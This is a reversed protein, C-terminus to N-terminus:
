RSRSGPHEAALTLGMRPRPETPLADGQWPSPRPNSDRRGSWNVRLYPCLKSPNPPSRFRGIQCSRGYKPRGLKTLTASLPMWPSTWRLARQRSSTHSRDSTDRISSHGLHDKVEEMHRGNAILIAACTHRLDHFRVSETQQLPSDTWPTRLTTRTCASRTGTSRLAPIDTLRSPSRLLLRGRRQGLDTGALGTFPVGSAEEKRAM